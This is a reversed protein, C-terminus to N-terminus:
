QAYGIVRDNNVGRVIARVVIHPGVGRYGREPTLFIGVPLTSEAHRSHDTPRPMNRLTDNAVFDHRVEVPKGCESCGNPSVIDRLIQLLSSSNLTLRVLYM